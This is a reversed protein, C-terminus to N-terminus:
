RDLAGDSQVRQRLEQLSRHFLVRAHGETLDLRRAVAAFSLDEEIRLRVVERERTPLADLLRRANCGERSNTSLAVPGAGSTALRDAAWEGWEIQRDERRMRTVILNRLITWLWSREQARGALTVQHRNERALLLAEHAADSEDLSRRARRSLLSRARLRLWSRHSLGWLSKPPRPSRNAETM